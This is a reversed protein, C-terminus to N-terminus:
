QEGEKTKDWSALNRYAAVMAIALDGVPSGAGKVLQLVHYALCECAERQAAPLKAIAAVLLDYRKLDADRQNM